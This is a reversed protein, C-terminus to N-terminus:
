GFSLRRDNHRISEISEKLRDTSEDMGVNVAQRVQGADAGAAIHIIPSVTIQIPGSSSSSKESRDLLERTYDGQPIDANDVLGPGFAPAPSTTAAVALNVKSAIEGNVKNTDIQAPIVPPLATTSIDERGDDKDKKFGPIFKGIKGMWSFMGKLQDWLGTFFKSIPEWNKYVAYAGGALAAVVGIIVGIPNASAAVNWAWQAATMVGTAAAGAKQQITLAILQARTLLCAAKMLQYGKVAGLVGGKLFTFAYGAAVTGAVLMTSGGALGIVASSAGPFEKIVHQAGMALKGMYHALPMITPTLGEGIASSLNGTQQALLSFAKLPGRETAKAMQTTVAMGGKVAKSMEKNAATIENTSDILGTIFAYTEASGSAKKLEDLEAQDFTEGYKEKIKNLIEPISQLTGTDPDIFDLDLADGTKSIDRLFAKFKTAAESGSMTKQLEGLVSLQEAFRYGAQTADKGLTSLGQSMQSGDTKFYKVATSIGASFYEGFKLDKEEDNLKEWGTIGAAGFSEFQKRYIGFGTAFLGTMEGVNSKTAKATLAAMSTFKGVSEGSLSSIGSKIDYSARIFAAQTVGSWMNSFNRGEETIKKLGMDGIDLSAIEGQASAVRGYSNVLGALSLGVAAIELMKGQYSGRKEKNAKQKLMIMNLKQQAAKTKNLRKELAAQDASLNRSSIGAEELSRSLKATATRENLLSGELKKAKQISLDHNSQLDKFSKDNKKIEKTLCSIEKEQKRVERRQAILSEKLTESPKEADDFAKALRLVELQANGLEKKQSRLNKNLEQSPNDTEKLTKAFRRIEDQTSRLEKETGKVDKKLKKFREVDKGGRELESVKKNLMSLNKQANLMSGSFSSQMKGGIQFAVEYIKARAVV